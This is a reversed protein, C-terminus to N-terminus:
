LSLKKMRRKKKTKTKQKINQKEKIKKIVHNFLPITTLKIIKEEGKDM